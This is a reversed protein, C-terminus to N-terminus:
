SDNAADEETMAKLAAQMANQEMSLRKVIQMRQKAGLTHRRAEEATNCSTAHAWINVHDAIGSSRDDAKQVATRAHKLDAEFKAAVRKFESVSVRREVRFAHDPLKLGSPPADLLLSAGGRGPACGLTRVAHQEQGSGDDQLLLKEVIVTAVQELYRAQTAAAKKEAAKELDAKSNFSSRWPGDKAADHAVPGNVIYGQDLCEEVAAMDFFLPAYEIHAELANCRAVYCAEAKYLQVHVHQDQRWFWKSGEYFLEGQNPLPSGPTSPATSSVMGAAIPSTAAGGQGAGDAAGGAAGDATPRDEQVVKQYSVFSRRTKDVSTAKPTGFMFPSKYNLPSDPDFKTSTTKLGLVSPRTKKKTQQASTDYTPAAAAAAAAAADDNGYLLEAAAASAEAAGTDASAAAAGAEGGLEVQRPTLKTLPPLESGTATGDAAAAAAAAATAAAAADLKLAAPDAM